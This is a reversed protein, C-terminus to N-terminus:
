VSARRLGSAGIGLEDCLALLRGTMRSLTPLGLRDLERDARCGGTSEVAALCLNRVDEATRCAHCYAKTRAIRAQADEFAERRDVRDPSVRLVPDFIHEDLFELLAQREADHAM